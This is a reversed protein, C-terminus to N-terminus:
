GRQMSRVYPVKVKVKYNGVGSLKKELLKAKSQIDESIMGISKEKESIGTQDLEIDASLKAHRNELETKKQMTKDSEIKNLLAKEDSMLKIMKKRLDALENSKRLRSIAGLTKAKLKDKLVISGRSVHMEVDSLVKRFLKLGDDKKVAAVPDDIYLELLVEEDKCSLQAVRSYKRLARSVPSLTMTIRARVSDTESVIKEHSENLEQFVRTSDGKEICKIEELLAKRSKVFQKLINKDSVIEKELKERKLFLSDFEEIIDHCKGMSEIRGKFPKLYALTEDIIKSMEFLDKKIKESVSPMGSGVFYFNKGTDEMLHTMQLKFDNFFKVSESGRVKSLKVNNCFVNLKSQLAKRNNIVAREMRKDRLEDVKATKLSDIDKALKEKLNRLSVINEATHADIDEFLPKSVTDLWPKVKDYKLTVNEQPMGAEKKERAEADFKEVLKKIKDFFGM